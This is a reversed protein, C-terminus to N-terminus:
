RDKPQRASAYLKLLCAMVMLSTGANFVTMAEYSMFYYSGMVRSAGAAGCLLIGLVGALIGGMDLIKEMNDGHRSGSNLIVPSASTYGQMPGVRYGRSHM